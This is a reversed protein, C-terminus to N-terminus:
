IIFCTIMKDSTEEQSNMWRCDLTMPLAKFPACRVFFHLGSDSSQEFFGALRDGRFILVLDGSPQAFDAAREAFGYSFSDEFPVGCRAPQRTQGAGGRARGGGLLGKQESFAAGRAEALKL